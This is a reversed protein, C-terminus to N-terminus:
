TEYGNIHEINWNTMSLIVSSLGAAAGGGALCHYLAKSGCAPSRNLHLSQSKNGKYGGNERGKGIQRTRL